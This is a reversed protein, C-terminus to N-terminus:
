SGEGQAEFREGLGKVHLHKGRVRSDGLKLFAPCNVVKCEVGPDCCLRVQLSVAVLTGVYMSVCFGEGLVQRHPTAASVFVSVVNILPFTSSM